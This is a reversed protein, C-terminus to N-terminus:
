FVFFSINTRVKHLIAALMLLLSVEATMIICFISRRIDTNMGFKKAKALLKKNMIQGAASNVKTDINVGGETDASNSWASGVIWWRGKTDATFSIFNYDIIDYTFKMSFELQNPM